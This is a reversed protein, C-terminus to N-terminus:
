SEEEVRQHFMYLAGRIHDYVELNQRGSKSPMHALRAFYCYATDLNAPLGGKRVIDFCISGLREWEYTRSLQGILRAQTTPLESVAEGYQCPTRCFACALEGWKRGQSKMPEWPIVVPMQARGAMFACLSADTEDQIHTGDSLHFDIMPADTVERQFRDLYNKVKIHVPKGAKSRMVAQGVELTRAYERQHDDLNLIDCFLNFSDADELWHMVKVHTNGIAGQVLNTPIQEAILIGEGFGRVEALINSFDEGGKARPDAQMESGFSGGSMLRHAEEVLTIHLRDRKDQPIDKQDSQLQETLATLLFGMILAIDESSGVRGLEMVTPRSLIESLPAPGEVNIISNTNQLLDRIRIESAQRVNGQVEKGYEQTLEQSVEVIAEYFDSMTPITVGPDGGKGTFLNWGRERYVQRLAERYIAPLPDWMSFAAMFSRMLLSLHTKLLIGPPVYFPNFRFPAVTDDGVTFILLKDRIDEDAMLLRYDPKDIPYLVLFPIRYVSWLHSLIHLCTNTKGSGTAGAILAHRKLDQVSLNFDVGTSTGRHIIEGLPVVQQSKGTLRKAEVASLASEPPRVFPEDKVVIGPMYGSEPPIPLRFAGAAEYATVLFPLRRSWPAIEPDGWIKHEMLKFNNIATRLEPHNRPAIRTWLRPEDTSNNMFESGLADVVALPAEREGVVQILISFLHNRQDILPDYTRWLDEFREKRYPALYGEAKEASEWLNRYQSLMRNINILEEHFLPTPHISISAVCVQDQFALAELFRGMASYDLVPSFPHPYYGMATNGMIPDLDEYKRIEMINEKKLADLSFPTLYREFERAETIPILPYNFPDELPFHAQFKEWLVEALHIAQRRNENFVKGLFVMDIDCKDEDTRPYAIFRLSFTAAHGEVGPLERASALDNIFRVQRGSILPVRGVGGFRVFDNSLFSPVFPVRAAFMAHAGTREFSRVGGNHWIEDVHITPGDVYIYPKM